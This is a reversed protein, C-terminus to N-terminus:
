CQGCVNCDPRTLYSTADQESAASANSAKCKETVKVTEATEMINLCQEGKRCLTIAESAEALDLRCYTLMDIFWFCVHGQNINCAPCSDLHEFIKDLALASPLLTEDLM